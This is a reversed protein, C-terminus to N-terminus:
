VNEGRKIEEKIGLVPSSLYRESHQEEASPGIKSFQESWVMGHNIQGLILKGMAVVNTSAALLEKGLNFNHADGFCSGMM